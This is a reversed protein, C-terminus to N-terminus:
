FGLVVCNMQRVDVSLQHTLSTAMQHEIEELCDVVSMSLGTWEGSIDCTADDM